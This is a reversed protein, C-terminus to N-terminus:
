RVPLIIRIGAPHDLTVIFNFSLLVRDNEALFETTSLAQFRPTTHSGRKVCNRSKVPLIEM